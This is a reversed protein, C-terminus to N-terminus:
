DQWVNEHNLISCLMDYAAKRKADRKSAAEGTCYYQFSAIRCECTWVPNGDKDHSEKYVYEPVTIYNKQWLEQLQSVAKEETPEPIEDKITVFLDEDVLYDYAKEAADMRAESKTIGYGAFDRGEINLHCIYDEAEADEPILDQASYTLSIRSTRSPNLLASAPVSYLGSVHRRANREEAVSRFTYQPLTGRKKQSWQQILSVYDDYDEMDNYFCTDLHLMMDVASGLVEMNWESDIAVAGLIAEFLDEKVHVQEQVNGMRDGKSMILYKALGLEDMRAALSRGNVLRKKIQSCEAENFSCKYGEDGYTSGYFESIEKVVILDLVRDGYFELIENNCGQHQEDTYSKRTFAQELLKKYRFTYGIEREVEKIAENDM